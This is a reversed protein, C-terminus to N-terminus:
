FRAFRLDKIQFLSLPVAASKMAGGRDTGNLTTCGGTCPVSDASAATDRHCGRSGM